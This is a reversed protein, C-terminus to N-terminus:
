RERVTKTILRYEVIYVMARSFIGLLSLEPVNTDALWDVLHWIGFSLLKLVKTLVACKSLYINCLFVCIKVNSNLTFFSYWCCCLIQTSNTNCTAHFHEGQDRQATSTVCNTSSSLKQCRIILTHLGWLVTRLGAWRKFSPQWPACDIYCMEQFQEGKCVQNDLHAARM